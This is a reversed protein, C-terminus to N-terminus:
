MGKTEYKKKLLKSGKTDGVQEDLYDNEEKLKKMEKEDEIEGTIPASVDKISRLTDKVEKVDAKIGFIANVFPKFMLEFRTKTLNFTLSATCAFVRVVERGNNTLNEIPGSIIFAIVMAKLVGRGVKGGFNPFTLLTICRIQTSFAIGFGLLLCIVGGVLFSVGEAFDLDVLIFKYFLMGLFVGYFFGLIGKVTKHQDKETFFLNHLFKSKKLCIRKLKKFSYNKRVMDQESAGTVKAITITQQYIVSLITGNYLMCFSIYRKCPSELLM